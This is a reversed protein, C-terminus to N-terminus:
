MQNTKKMKNLIDEKIWKPAEQKITSQVTKRKENLMIGKSRNKYIETGERAIKRGVLFAPIEVPKNAVWNDIADVPPFKGPGRGQDLYYMYGVGSLTAKLKAGEMRADIRMSNAAEGTDDIKKASLDRRIEQEADELVKVTNEVLKSM